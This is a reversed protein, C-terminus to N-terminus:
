LKKSASYQQMFRVPKKMAADRFEALLPSFNALVMKQDSWRQVMAKWFAKFLLVGAERASSGIRRDNAHRRLVQLTAITFNLSVAMFPFERKGERSLALANRVLDPEEEGLAVMQIPGLLGCGRLDTSPDIGQFGISEWKSSPTANDPFGHQEGKAVRQYLAEMICQDEHRSWDLATKALRELDDLDTWQSSSGRSPRLAGLRSMFKRTKKSDMTREQEKGPGLEPDESDNGEGERPQASHGDDCTLAARILDNVIFRMPQAQSPHSRALSDWVDEDECGNQELMSDSANEAQKAATNLEDPPSFPPVEILIRREPHKM